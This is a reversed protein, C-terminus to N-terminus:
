ALSLGRSKVEALLAKSIPEEECDEIFDLTYRVLYEDEMAPIVNNIMEWEQAERDIAASLM